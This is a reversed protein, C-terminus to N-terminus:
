ACPSSKKLRHQPNCNENQKEPIGRLPYLMYSYYVVPQVLSNQNGRCEVWSMASHLSKWMQNYLPKYPQLTQTLSSQHNVM